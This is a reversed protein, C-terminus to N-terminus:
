QISDSISLTTTSPKPASTPRSDYADDGDYQPLRTSISDSAGPGLTSSPLTTVPCIIGISRTQAITKIDESRAVRAPIAQGQRLHKFASPANDPDPRPPTVYTSSNIAANDVSISIGSKSARRTTSDLFPFFPLSRCHSSAMMTATITNRHLQHRHKERHADRYWNAGLPDSPGTFM